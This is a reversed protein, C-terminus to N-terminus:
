RQLRRKKTLLVSFIITLWMVMFTFGSIIEPSATTTARPYLASNAYAFGLNDTSHSWYLLHLVRHEIHLSPTVGAEAESFVQMENWSALEVNKVFIHLNNENPNIWAVYIMDGGPAAALAPARRHHTTCQYIDESTWVTDYKYLTIVNYPTSPTEAVVLPRGKHFQCHLASFPEVKAPEGSTREIAGGDYEWGNEDITFNYYSLTNNQDICIFHSHCKFSSGRYYARNLGPIFVRLGINHSIKHEFDYKLWDFTGVRRIGYTVVNEKGWVAHLNNDADVELVENLDHYDTTNDVHELIWNTFKKYSLYVQRAQLNSSYVGFLIYPHDEKDFVLSISPPSSYGGSVYELTWQATTPDREAYWIGYESQSNKSYFAVGVKEEPDTVSCAPSQPQVHEDPIPISELDGWYSSSPTFTALLTCTIIFLHPLKGKKTM